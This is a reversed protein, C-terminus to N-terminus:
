LKVPLPLPVIPRGFLSLEVQAAAPGSLTDGFHGSISFFDKSPSSKADYANDGTGDSITVGTVLGLQVAPLGSFAVTSTSFLSGSVSSLEVNRSVTDNYDDIAVKGFSSVSVPGGLASLLGDGVTVLGGLDEVSVPTSSSDISVNGKRGGEVTLSTKGPKTTAYTVVSRGNFKVANNTVTLVSAASDSQDDVTLTTDSFTNNVSVTGAVNALSGTGVAVNDIANSNDNVQVSIGAPLSPINVANKGSGNDNVVISKM